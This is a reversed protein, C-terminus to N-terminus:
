RTWVEEGDDIGELTGEMGGKKEEEEDEEVVTWIVEDWRMEVEVVERKYCRQSIYYKVKM